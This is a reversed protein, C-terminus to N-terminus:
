PKIAKVPAGDQLKMIGATVVLDGAALGSTIEVSGTQRLGLTVKQQVAKGDRVVFVYSDDGKPIIAQEPVVLADKHTATVINIRAFMGARLRGGANPINAKVEFSHTNKDIRPAIAYVAGSFSEGPWADVSFTIKQGARIDAYNKEPVTFTMKVPDIVDLTTLAQGVQIYDGVSFDRLGAVGDFPALVKSKELRIRASEIDAQAEQLNGGSQEWDQRSVYGSAKLKESRAFVSKRVNYAAQAKMLETRILSDDIEILSAGKKVPQGESFNIAKVPGAIEARIEASESASLSGVASITAELDRVAVATAEVPQAPLQAQCVAIGGLFAIVALLTAKM